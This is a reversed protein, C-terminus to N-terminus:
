GKSRTSFLFFLSAASLMGGLIWNRRTNLWLQPSSPLAEDVFPGHAGHDGHVPSWLNDRRNSELPADDQQIEYGKEALLRELLGPMLKNAAVMPVLPAGVLLGRRRHHAAWVIAQAAVAPDYVPAVPRPQRTLRAKVWTFQPTNVGPLNVITVHVKSREHLLEARLSETFGQVAHKSAAYASLLPLGRYALASGVQVISRHDRPLMRRLAAITGHVVGLYNVEMVRRYEEATTQKVPSFVSVIANNVWIDIPGFAREVADAAAEVLNPNSVDTPLVLARGGAIEVEERAAELGETGRALLGIHAGRRAFARVTARGVGASAGTIVVVEPKRHLINM